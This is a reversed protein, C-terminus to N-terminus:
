LLRAVVTSTALLALLWVDLRFFLAALMRAGVPAGGALAPLAYLLLGGLFIGAVFAAAAVWRLHRARRKRVARRVAEAVGGGAIPGVLIAGLYSFWGFRGLVLFALVGLLGGLILATAAALPLDAGTANYFVAQQGRVCEKCRYGVPTQVACQYCIPKDCRNCRLMTERNPHNACYLVKADPDTM